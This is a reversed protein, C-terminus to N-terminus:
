CATDLPHGFFFRRMADTFIEGRVTMVWMAFPSVTLIASSKAGEFESNMRSSLFRRTQPSIDPSTYLIKSLFM